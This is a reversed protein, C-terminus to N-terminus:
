INDTKARTLGSPSVEEEFEEESEYEEEGSDRDGQQPKDTADQQDKGRRKQLWKFM